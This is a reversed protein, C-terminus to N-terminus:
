NILKKRLKPPPLSCADKKGFFSLRNKSVWDYTMDRLNEPILYLVKGLSWYGGLSKGTEIVAKSKIYANKEKILVMTDLKDTPLNYEKLLKQGSDSQLPKMLFCDRSDEEAIFRMAKNCLGCDGDYLITVKNDRKNLWKQDFTFLHLMLMGLSLDAFSIVFMIGLHMMVMVSWAIFRGKRSLCLPLFSIEAVIVGWTMLKLVWAPLMLMIERIFNDRALPNTLLHSMASGDQWSPSSLKDIGSFSYGVAMLIWAVIPIMIPMHWDTQKQRYSLPEGKPVIALLLLLLGIYPISPNSILNNRNFLCAWLFWLLLCVIQRQWGVILVASLMICLGLFSLIVGPSDIYYLPNWPAIPYTFNLSPTPIIGVSSFLEISDPLLVLFHWLLYLGFVIRFITFQYPTYDKDIKTLYTIM